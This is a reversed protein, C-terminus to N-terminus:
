SISDIMKSERLKKLYEFGRATTSVGDANQQVFGLSLLYSKSKRFSAGDFNPFRAIVVNDRYPNKCFDMIMLESPTIGRPYIRCMRLANLVDKRNITRKDRGEAEFQMIIQDLITKMPRATGRGTQAIARLTEPNAPQMNMDKLMIQLIEILEDESYAKLDIMDCRSQFAGSKDLKDPFNTALVISGRRRDFHVLNEEDFRIAKGNNEKDLAKMLFAKVKELRVTKRNDILHVEDIFIAYKDANVITHVLQDYAEGESRFEEPSSFRLVTFGGEELADIYATSIKTKGVGAPAKILPSLMSGGNLGSQISYTLLQKAETQGVVSDFASHIEKMIYLVVTGSFHL